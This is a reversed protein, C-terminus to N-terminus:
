YKNGVIMACFRTPIFWPLQLRLEVPLRQIFRRLNNRLNELHLSVAYISKHPKEKYLNYSTAVQSANLLM